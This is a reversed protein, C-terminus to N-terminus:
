EDALISCETLCMSGLYSYCCVNILIHLEEPNFKRVLISTISAEQFFPETKQLVTKLETLEMYNMKMNIANSGSEIM